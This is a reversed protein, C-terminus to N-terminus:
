RRDYQIAEEGSTHMRSTKGNLGVAHIGFFLLLWGHMVIPQRVIVQEPRQLAISDFKFSLGYIQPLRFLYTINKRRYEKQM